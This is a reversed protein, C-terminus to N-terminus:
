PTPKSPQPIHVEQSCGDELTYPMPIFKVRDKDIRALTYMDTQPSQQALYFTGCKSCYVLLRGRESDLLQAAMM